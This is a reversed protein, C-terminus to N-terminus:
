LVRKHWNFVRSSRQGLPEVQEYELAGSIEEVGIMVADDDYEQITSVTFRNGHMKIFSLFNPHISGRLVNIRIRIKQGIEINKFKDLFEYLM